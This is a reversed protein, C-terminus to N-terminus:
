TRARCGDRDGPFFFKEIQSDTATEKSFRDCTALGPGTAILANDAKTTSCLCIVAIAAVIAKRM